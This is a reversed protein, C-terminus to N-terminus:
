SPAAKYMANGGEEGPDSGRRGPDAGLRAAGRVVEEGVLVVLDPHGRGCLAGDGLVINAVALRRDRQVVRADIRLLVEPLFVPSPHQAIPQTFHLHLPFILTCRILNDHNEELDALTFSSPRCVPTTILTGLFALQFGTLFPLFVLFDNWLIDVLVLCSEVAPLSTGFEVELGRDLGGGELLLVVVLVVVVVTAVVVAAVVVVVSDDPACDSKM